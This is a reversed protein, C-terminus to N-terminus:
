PQETAEVGLIAELEAVRDVIFQPANEGALEVYRRYNALAETFQGLQDYAFGRVGYANAYTPNIRIAQTYDEIAGDLDSSDNWGMRYMGM